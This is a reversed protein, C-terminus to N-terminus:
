HERYIEFACDVCITYNCDACKQVPLINSGKKIAKECVGCVFGNELMDKYIM